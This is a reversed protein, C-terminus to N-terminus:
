KAGFRQRTRRPPSYDRFPQTRFAHQRVRWWVGAWFMLYYGLVIAGAAMSGSLGSQALWSQEGPTLKWAQWARWFGFCIRAAIGITLALVLWRNPTFHLM